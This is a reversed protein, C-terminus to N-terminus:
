FIRLTIQRIKKVVAIKFYFCGNKRQFTTRTLFTNNRWSYKNAAVFIDATFENKDSINYFCLLQQIIPLNLTVM